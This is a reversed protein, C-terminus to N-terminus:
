DDKKSEESRLAVGVSGEADFFFWIGADQLARIMASLKKEGPTRAGREFEHVSSRGVNARKAFEDQSWGLLGRAARCLAASFLAEIEPLNRSSNVSM